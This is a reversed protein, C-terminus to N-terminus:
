KTHRSSSYSSLGEREKKRGEKGENKRQRFSLDFSVYIFMHMVAEPPPMNFGDEAVLQIAAFALLRASDENDYILAPHWLFSQEVVLRVMSEFLTLTITEFGVWFSWRVSFKITEFGPWSSGRGAKIFVAAM